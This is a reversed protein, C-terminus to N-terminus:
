LSIEEDNYRTLVSARQAWEHCIFFTGNRPHVAAFFPSKDRAPENALDCSRRTIIWKRKREAYKIAATTNAICCRLQQLVETSNDCGM